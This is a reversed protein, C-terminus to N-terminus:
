LVFAIAAFLTALSVLSNKVGLGGGDATNPVETPQSSGASIDNPRLCTLHQTAFQIDPINNDISRNTSMITIMPTVLTTLNNYATM